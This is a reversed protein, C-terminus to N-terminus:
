LSLRLPKIYLHMTTWYFYLKGFNTRGEVAHTEIKLM